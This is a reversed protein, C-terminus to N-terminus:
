HQPGSDPQSAAGSSLLCRLAMVGASSAMFHVLLEHCFVVVVLWLTSTLLGHESGIQTKYCIFEVQSYISFILSVQWSVGGRIPQSLCNVGSSLPAQPSLLVFSEFDVKDKSGASVNLGHKEHRRKM